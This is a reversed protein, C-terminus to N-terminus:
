SSLRATLSDRAVLATSRRYTLPSRQTEVLTARLRKYCSHLTELRSPPQKFAIIAPWLQVRERFHALLPSGRSRGRKEWVRMANSPSCFSPQHHENTM